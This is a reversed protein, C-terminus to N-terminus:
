FIKLHSSQIKKPPYRGLKLKLKKLMLLSIPFFNCLQKIYLHFNRIVQTKNCDFAGHCRLSAM